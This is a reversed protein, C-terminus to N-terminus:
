YRPEVWVTRGPRIFNNDLQNLERFREVTMNNTLAISFITDGKKIVYSKTGSHSTLANASSGENGNSVSAGFPIRMPQYARLVDSQIGNLRKLEEVTTNFKKALRYLTMGPEAIYTKATPSFKAAQITFEVRRNLQRGSATENSGVPSNEGRASVRLSGRDVGQGVLYESTKNGRQLSLRTNYDDM